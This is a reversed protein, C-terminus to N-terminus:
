SLITHTWLDQKCEECVLKVTDVVTRQDNMQRLELSYWESAEFDDEHGCIVCYAM